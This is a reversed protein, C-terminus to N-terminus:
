FLISDILLLLKWKSYFELCFADKWTDSTLPLTSSHDTQVFDFDSLSADIRVINSTSGVFHVTLDLDSLM